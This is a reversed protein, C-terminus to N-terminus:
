DDEEGRYNRGFKLDALKFSHKATDAFPNEEKAGAPEEAAKQAHHRRAKRSGAAPFMVTADERVAEQEEMPKAVPFVTTTDAEREREYSAVIKESLAAIDAEADQTAKAQQTTQELEEPTLNPLAELQRIQDECIARTKEVFERTQEKIANLRKQENVIEDRLAGIRARAEMEADALMTEKKEEAESVMSSAMNQATLLAKRMSDETARYEEVKDVLVKMKAKLAANEKYLATYDDTLEDLFEDVMTMNYGGFASKSFAHDAVEQPTLM